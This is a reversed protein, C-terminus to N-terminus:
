DYDYFDNSYSYVPIGTLIRIGNVTYGAESNMYNGMVKAYAKELMAGWIAQEDVSTSAFVLPTTYITNFLLHDDITVVWPKGRIYFQVNYIGEDNVEENKFTARVMDPYEALAAMSAKIFCTGLGGQIVDTWDIVDDSSFIGIDPLEM